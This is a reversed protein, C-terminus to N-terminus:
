ALNPSELKLRLGQRKKRRKMVKAPNKTSANANTMVLAAKKRAATKSTMGIIRGVTVGIRARIILWSCHM